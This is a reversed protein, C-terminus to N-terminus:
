VEGPRTGGPQRRVPASRRYLDACFKSLEGVGLERSAEAVASADLATRAPEAPSFAPVDQAAQGAEKVADAFSRGAKLGDAIKTRIEEANANLAARTREEKIAQVVKPRAEELTLPRPPTVNLLHLDYFANATQLPVDSDPSDKTLQFAAQVFGPISGEPLGAFDNKEFDTTQKVPLNATGAAAAFDTKGKNDLLDTLFTVAQNALPQLADMKPKGVLKKQEDSLALTVYEVKRKEPQIYQQKQDEFAKKIEDDTPEKVGAAFESTALRVVSANTKTYYQEYALRTDLPSAVVPAEVVSRLKGVQLDERVLDDVQDASFGRPALTDVIFQNRAEASYNGDPGQFAPLKTEANVVEDDTPYIGMAEAQHVLVLHNVVADLDDGRGIAERSVLNTLGMEGATRLQRNIREVEISTLNRGYISGVRDGSLRDGQTRAGYFWFLSIIVLVSIIGMLWRQNSRMINIFM